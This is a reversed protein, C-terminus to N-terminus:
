SHRQDKVIDGILKYFLSFDNHDWTMIVAAQRINRAKKKILDDNEHVKKKHDEFDSSNPKM